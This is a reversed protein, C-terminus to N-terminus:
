QFSAHLGLKLSINKAIKPAATGAANCFPALLSVRARLGFSGHNGRPLVWVCAM